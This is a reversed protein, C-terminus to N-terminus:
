RRENSIGDVFGIMLLSTYKYITIPFCSTRIREFSASVENEM